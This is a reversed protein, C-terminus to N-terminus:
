QCLGTLSSAEPIQFFSKRLYNQECIQNISMELDFQLFLFYNHGNQLMLHIRSICSDTHIVPDPMEVLQNNLESVDCTMNLPLTVWQEDRM